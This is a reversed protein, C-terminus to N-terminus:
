QNDTVDVHRRMGLVGTVGFVVANTGVTAVVRSYRGRPNPIHLEASGAAVIQAVADDNGAPDDAPYDTWSVDDDSYQTKVDLTGSAGVDGVSILFSISNGDVHDATAGNVVGVGNSSAAISALLLYNSKVDGKM